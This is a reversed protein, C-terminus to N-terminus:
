RSRGGHPENISVGSVRFPAPDTVRFKAFFGPPDAMGLARWEVEKRYHGQEGMTATMAAEFTQGGDYSQLLEVKPDVYDGTLYETQGPNTRLLVNDVTVAGGNLVFGACFAREQYGDLDTHGSLTYIQGDVTSGFLPGQAVPGGRFNSVGTKRENWRGTQADYEVTMTDLSVKLFEHGEFFYSDVRCSTSATIVDEIGADSIREPVNGGRYVINDGSVWAVTNDFTAACGTARVGKQYLRGTSPLYPLDTDGTKPWFEVTKSGLFAIADEFVAMDLLQDPESEVSAYNLADVTVNGGSDLMTELPETWYFVQSGERLFIFRGGQEGVKTVNASDPMSISFFRAGDFFVPVTGNTAVIGVENGTINGTRGGSVAGIYTEGQYLYGGSLGFLVGGLVGDKRFLANVPGAGMEVGYLAMGPFSQLAFQTPETVASESFMNVLPMVPLNGRARRVTTSILALDPM